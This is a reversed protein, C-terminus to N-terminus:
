GRCSTIRYFTMTPGSWAIALDTWEAPQFAQGLARERPGDLIYCARYKRAMTQQQAQNSGFFAQLAQYKEQYRLTEVPHGGVVTKGTFGALVVSDWPSAVIAQDTPVHTKIFQFLQRYEPSLFYEWNNRGQRERVYDQMIHSGSIITSGGLVVIAAGIIAVQRLRNHSARVWLATVAPVALFAFPIVLGQMLRRQSNFPFFIVALHLLAWGAVWGLQQNPDRRNKWVGLLALILLGGLGVGVHWVSPTLNINQLARGQVIPDAALSLIYYLIAPLSFFIIMMWRCVYGRPLIKTTSWRWLTLGFWITVWTLLHFPHISLTLLGVLGIVWYQQWSKEQWLREVGVLVFIIGSTVLLFHPTTWSSLMPVMESVWLDPPLQLLLGYNIGSSWAVLGGVGSAGVALLLAVRRALRDSWVWTVAWWVTAVFVIMSVVRGLAFVAPTSLHLFNAVWGLVLWVPQWLTVTHPESTFVDRMLVAGHRAQEIYSYYVNPDGPALITNGQFVYGAPTLAQGFLYPGAAILVAVIGVWVIFRRDSPPQNTNM